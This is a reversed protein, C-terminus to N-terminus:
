ESILHLAVMGAARKLWQSSHDPEQNTVVVLKKEVNEYVDLDMGEAILVIEGPARVHRVDVGHPLSSWPTGEQCDQMFFNPHYTKTVCSFTSVFKVVIVNM